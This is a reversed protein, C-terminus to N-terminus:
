ACAQSGSGARGREAQTCKWLLISLLLELIVSISAIALIKNLGQQIGPMISLGIYVYHCDSMRVFRRKYHLFYLESSNFLKGLIV